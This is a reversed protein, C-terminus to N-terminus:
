GTKSIEKLNITIENRREVLKNTINQLKESDNDVRWEEWAELWEVYLQHFPNIHQIYDVVEYMAQRWDEAVNAPANFFNGDRPSFNDAYAGSAYVDKVSTIPDAKKFALNEANSIVQQQENYHDIVATSVNNIMSVLDPDANEDKLYESLYAFSLSEDRIQVSYENSLSALADEVSDFKFSGDSDLSGDAQWSIGNGLVFLTHILVDQRNKFISSYNILNRFVYINTDM